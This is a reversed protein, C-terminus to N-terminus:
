GDNELVTREIGVTEEGWAEDCEYCTLETPLEAHERGSIAADAKGGCEPCESVIYTSRGRYEVRLKDDIESMLGLVGSSSVGPV